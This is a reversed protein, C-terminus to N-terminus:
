ASRGLRPSAYVLRVGEVQKLAEFARQVDTAERNNWRFDFEDCYRQLHKGSVHHFTGYIGRKLIAFSSEASNTTVVKDGEIRFYEYIGHNVSEHGAFGKTASRYAKNEDTHIEASPDVTEILNKRLNHAKVNPVVKTRKRGDREVLVQVPVKKSKGQMGPRHGRRNKKRPKGGVYAEDSEVVGMFPGGDPSNAMAARIRHCMFWATKYTVGLERHLQHASIGKKSSVMRAVAYVWDRLPLPSEEFITGIRVTFNKRCGRCKWLGKEASKGGLKTVQDSECRPCKAGNPWRASELLDRAETETLRVLTKPLNSEM